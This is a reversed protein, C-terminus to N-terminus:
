ASTSRTTRPPMDDLRELGLPLLFLALSMRIALPRHIGANQQVM